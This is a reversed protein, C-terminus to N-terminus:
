IQDQIEVSATNDNAVKGEKLKEIVKNKQELSEQM